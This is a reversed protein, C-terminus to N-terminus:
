DWLLATQPFIVGSRRLRPYDDDLSFLWVTDANWNAFSMRRRNPRGEQCTAGPIKVCSFQDFNRSLVHRIENRNGVFNSYARWEDTTRFSLDNWIHRQESLLYIRTFANALSRNNNNRASEEVIYNNTVNEVVSGVTGNLRYYAGTIGSIFLAQRGDNRTSQLRIRNHAYSNEVGIKFRSSVFYRAKLRQWYSFHDDGSAMSNAFGYFIHVFHSAPTYRNTADHVFIPSLTYSNVIYGADLMAVLGAVIANGELRGEAYSEKILTGGSLGAGLLGGVTLGGYVNAKSYSQSIRAKQLASAGATLSGITYENTGTAGVLGGAMDGDIDITNSTSGLVPEESMIVNGRASSSTIFGSGMWGVLGGCMRHSEKLEEGRACNVLVNVHSRDIQATRYPVLVNVYTFIDLHPIYARYVRYLISGTISFFHSTQFGILGGTEGAGQVSGSATVKYVSSRVMHGALIGVQYKGIVQANEIILNQVTAGLLHAFLGVQRQDPRNIYLNAIKYGRGNLHGAFFQIPLFGKGGDMERSSSADIDCGLELYKTNKVRMYLDLQAFTYIKYPNEKSGDGEVENNCYSSSSLRFNPM